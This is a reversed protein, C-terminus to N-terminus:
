DLDIEICGEHVLWTLEWGTMTCVQGSELVRLEGVTVEDPIGLEFLAQEAAERYDLAEDTVAVRVKGDKKAWIIVM